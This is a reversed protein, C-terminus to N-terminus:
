SASVERIIRDTIQHTHPKVLGTLVWVTTDFRRMALTGDDTQEFFEDHQIKGMGPEATVTAMRILGASVAQPLWVKRAWLLDKPHIVKAKRSDGICYLIHRERIARLGTM